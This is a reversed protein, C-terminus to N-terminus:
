QLIDGLATGPKNMYHSSYSGIKLLILVSFVSTHFFNQTLDTHHVRLTPTGPVMRQLM